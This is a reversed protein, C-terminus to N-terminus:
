EGQVDENQDKREKGVFGEETGDGKHALAKAGGGKAGDSANFPRM